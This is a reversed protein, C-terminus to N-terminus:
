AENKYKQFFPHGLCDNADPRDEPDFTLMKSLLNIFSKVTHVEEDTKFSETCWDFSTIISRDPDQPGDYVSLLEAGTETTHGETYMRENIGFHRVLRHFTDEPKASKDPIDSFLYQKPNFFELFVVGLGWIDMKSTGSIGLWAEPSRYEETMCEYSCSGFTSLNFDVFTASRAATLITEFNSEQYDPVLINESKIDGHIYSYLSGITALGNLLQYGMERIVLLRKFPSSVQPALKLVTSKYIDMEVCTAVVPVSSKGNRKYGVATYIKHTKVFATKATVTDKLIADISRSMQYEICSPDDDAYVIERVADQCIRVAYNNKQLTTVKLATRFGTEKNMIEFVAGYAGRGLCRRCVVSGDEFMPIAVDSTKKESCVRNIFQTTVCVIPIKLETGNQMNLISYPRYLQEKFKVDSGFEVDDSISMCQLMREHDFAIPSGRYVSDRSEETEFKVPEINDLSVNVLIHKSPGCIKCLCIQSSNEYCDEAYKTSSLCDSCVLQLNEQPETELVFNLGFLETQVNLSEPSMVLKHVLPNQSSLWLVYQKFTEINLSSELM